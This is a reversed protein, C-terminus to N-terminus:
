KGTGDPTDWDNGFVKLVPLEQTAVKAVYPMLNNPTEGNADEGILGSEHAGIPNFYRLIIINWFEPESKFLDKLIEETFLKTRGYPNTCGTDANEDIPLRKPQGYVTASSSFVIKSVNYKKMTSLLVMTATMNNSYYSLPDQSSEALSKLGACHIVSDFSYKSFIGNLQQENRIDAQIFPFVKGTIRELAKLPAKSSNCLNDVLIVNYEIPLHAAVHSGIYGTGGTILITPSSVALM